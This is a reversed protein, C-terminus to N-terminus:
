IHFMSRNEKSKEKRAITTKESVYLYIPGYMDEEKAAAFFDNKSSPMDYYTDIGFRMSFEYEGNKFISSLINGTAEDIKKFNSYAEKSSLNEHPINSNIELVDENSINDLMEAITYSIKNYIDLYKIDIKEDEGLEELLIKKNLSSNKEIYNLVNILYITLNEARKLNENSRIRIDNIKEIDVQKKKM